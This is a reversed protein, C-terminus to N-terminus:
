SFLFLHILFFFRGVLFRGFTRVYVIGISDIVTIYVLLIADCRMADSHKEKSAFIIKSKSDISSRRSRSVKHLRTARHEHECRERKALKFNYWKNDQYRIKIIRMVKLKMEKANQLKDTCWIWSCINAECSFFLCHSIKYIQGVSRLSSFHSFFSIIVIIQLRFLIQDVDNTKPYKNIFKHKENQEFIRMLVFWEM